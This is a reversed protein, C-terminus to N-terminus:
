DERHERAVGAKDPPSAPLVEKVNLHIFREGSEQRVAPSVVLRFPPAAPLSLGAPRSGYWTRNRGDSVKLFRNNASVGEASLLLHPRPNGIGFPAMLDLCDMLEGTLDDFEAAVDFFPERVVAERGAGAVTEEFAERFRALNEEKTITIGCAHKHGGFRELLPSLRSIAEYLDISGGGRGSGKWLGDVRTMIVAPKGYMEVLRQAVIGIVGIHWGESYLVISNLSGPGQGEVLAVTENLIQEEIRQRSRNAEQLRELCEQSEWPDECLLFRLSAAPEGMRGTANIRPVIVFNVAQEDIGRNRSLLNQKIFTKLWTRPHRNMMELGFRVLIRNDGKLPVMDGMTGLAVIDLEKKLNVPEKMLGRAHLLRRLAMLFFFTVGCAALERTPFASGKRKPNIVAQAPPLTEGVEHHDIVIVDMGATRAWEVEKVNTSGCDLCVLLDAGLGRVKELGKLNLGYGEERTPIHTIPEVGFNRLFGALLRVSAIGDADYDGYLCIREKRQIAEVFRLVGKEMDPLLAPDSLDTLKPYLYAEAEKTNAIGRVVLIEAFRAPLGLDAAIAGAAARREGTTVRHV